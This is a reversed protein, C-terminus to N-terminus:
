GTGNFCCRYGVDAFRNPHEVRSCVDLSWSIALPIPVDQRSRKSPNDDTAPSLSPPPVPFVLDELDSDDEIDDPFGDIVFEDTRVTGDHNRKFFITHEESERTECDTIECYVARYNRGNHNYYSRDTVSFEYGDLPMCRVAVNVIERIQTDTLETALVPVAIAPVAIAPVAIAPVALTPAPSAVPVSVIPSDTDANFQPYIFDAM